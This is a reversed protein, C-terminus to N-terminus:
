ILSARDFLFWIWHLTKTVYQFDCPPLHRFRFLPAWSFSDFRFTVFLRFSIWAVIKACSHCSYKRFCRQIESM